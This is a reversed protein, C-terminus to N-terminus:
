QIIGLAKAQQVIAKAREFLPADVMKGEVVFAGMGSREMDALKDLVSLAHAIDADSPRFVQNAAAIQKPHICSKGIFGLRRASEAEAVFGDMDAVDTFAGDIAVVGAEGAAMRVAFMVAHISATDRRDIGLPSFLDGYGIQLGMIRPSVAALEAARRLGKPSEINVLLGIPKSVDFEREARELLQAAHHIESPEEVKPINLITLGNRAIAMVDPEFHVSGVPNSRVIVTKDSGQADRLFQAVQGRAEAKRSEVVADELDISLADAASALAKPFLEPRSGPVFLKSRM